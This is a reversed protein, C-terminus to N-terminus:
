PLADIREFRIVGLDGWSELSGTVRVPVGVHELIDTSPSQSDATLLLFFREGGDPAPAILGPPIGGAICVRACARHVQGTGPQMAGLFCKPDVIEGELTIPGQPQPTPTAATITAPDPTSLTEIVGPRPALELVRRGDRTILTGHIRALSGAAGSQIVARTAGLKGYDVLLVTSWSQPDQDSQVRLMPWPDSLLLGELAVEDAPWRGQGPHQMLAAAGATILALMSLLVPTIVRLFRRLPAPVPLYNVYFGDRPTM